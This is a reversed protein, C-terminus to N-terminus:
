NAIAALDSDGFCFDMVVLTGSMKETLRHVLNLKAKLSAHGGLPEHM